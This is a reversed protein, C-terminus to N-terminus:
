EQEVPVYVYWAADRMAAIGEECFVYPTGVELCNSEGDQTPMESGKVQSTLRGAWDAEAPEYGLVQNKVSPITYLVGDVLVYPRLLGPASGDPLDDGKNTGGLIALVVFLALVAALALWKGKM